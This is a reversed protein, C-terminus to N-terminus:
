RLSFRVSTCFIVSQTVAVSDFIDCLTDFKWQEQFSVSQSVGDHSSGATTSATRKLLSMTSSFVTCHCKM